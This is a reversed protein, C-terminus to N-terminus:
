QIMNKTFFLLSFIFIYFLIGFFNGFAVKFDQGSPIGSSIFTFNIYAYLLFYLLDKEFFGWYIKDIYYLIGFMLIPALATPIANYFAINKFQVQGLVYNGNEDKKPFVSFSTPKGFTIFGVIFHLFEHIITSPLFFLGSLFRNSAAIVYRIYAFVGFLISYIFIFNNFIFSNSIEVIHILDLNFM